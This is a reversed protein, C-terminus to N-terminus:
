CAACLRQGKADITTLKTEEWFGHETWESEVKRGKGKSASTAPVVTPSFPMNFKKPGERLLNPSILAVGIRKEAWFSDFRLPDIESLASARTALDSYNSCQLIDQKFDIRHPTKTGSFPSFPSFPSFASVSNQPVSTGPTLHEALRMGYRGNGQM